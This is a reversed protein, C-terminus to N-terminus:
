FLNPDYEYDSYEPNGEDDYEVNYNEETDAKNVVREVAADKLSIADTIWRENAQVDYMERTTIRTGTEKLLKAWEYFTEDPLENDANIIVERINNFFEHWRHNDGAIEWASKLEDFLNNYSMNKLSEYDMTFNDAPENVDKLNILDKGTINKLEKIDAKTIRAPAKFAKNFESESLGSSGLRQNARQLRGLEKQYAKQNPTLRKAM